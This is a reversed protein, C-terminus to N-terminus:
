GESEFVGRCVEFSVDALTSELLPHADLVTTRPPGPPDLRAHISMRNGTARAM